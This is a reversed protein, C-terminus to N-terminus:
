LHARAALGCRHRVFRAGLIQLRLAVLQEGLHALRKRPNVAREREQAV